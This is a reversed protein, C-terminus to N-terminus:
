IGLILKILDLNTFVWWARWNNKDCFNKYRHYCLWILCKRFM